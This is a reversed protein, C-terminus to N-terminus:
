VKRIRTNKLDVYGLDLAAVAEKNSDKPVSAENFM